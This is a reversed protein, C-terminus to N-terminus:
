SPYTTEGLMAGLRSIAPWQNDGRTYQQISKFGFAERDRGTRCAQSRDEGQNPSGRNPDPGLVYVRRWDKRGPRALGGLATLM